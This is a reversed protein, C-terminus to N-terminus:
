LLEEICKKFNEFYGDSEFQQLFRISIKNGENGIIVALPIDTRNESEIGVIEDPSAQTADSAVNTLLFTSSFMRGLLLGKEEPKMDVGTLFEKIKALQWRLAAEELAQDAKELSSTISSAIDGTDMQIVAQCLSMNKLIRM